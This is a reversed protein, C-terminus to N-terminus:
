NWVRRILKRKGGKVLWVSGRWLNIGFAYRVSTTVIRFRKGRRDVGTVLWHDPKDIEDLLIFGSM